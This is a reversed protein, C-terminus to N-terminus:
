NISCITNRTLDHGVLLPLNVAPHGVYYLFTPVLHGTVIKKGITLARDNRSRKEQGTIWILRRRYRTAIVIQFVHRDLHQAKFTRVIPGDPEYVRDAIM